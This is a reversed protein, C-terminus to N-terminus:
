GIGRERKQSSAFLEAVYSRVAGYCECSLRELKERSIIQMSGRCCNLVGAAELRGAILTVTTRRVGLMQALDSQKLPVKNSGTRDQIELLWRCIRAEVPHDANCLAAQQAQAFMANDFLAALRRISPSQDLLSRFSAASMGSAEGAIHVSAECAACASAEATLGGIIGDGGVLIVAVGACDESSMTIAVLGSHPFIVQETLDGVRHLCQGLRLDFPSLHPRVLTLDPGSLASLFANRGDAAALMLM